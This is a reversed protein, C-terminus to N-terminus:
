ATGFARTEACGFITGTSGATAFFSSPTTM